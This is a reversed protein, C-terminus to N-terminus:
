IRYGKDERIHGVLHQNTRQLQQYHISALLLASIFLGLKEKKTHVLDSVISDKILTPLSNKVNYEIALSITGESVDSIPFFVTDTMKRGCLALEPNISEM